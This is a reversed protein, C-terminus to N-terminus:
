LFVVATRFVDEPTLEVLMAVVDSLLAANDQGTGGGRVGSGSGSAGDTAGGAQDQSSHGLEGVDGREQEEGECYARPTAEHKGNIAGDTNQRTEDNAKSRQARSRLMVLWSRRRWTRDAPAMTLLLRVLEVEEHACMSGEEGDFPIDLMDVASRGACDLAAEDAGHRLLLGVAEQLGKPRHHCTVHLASMGTEDSCARANQGHRVLCEMVRAHGSASALDFASRYCGDATRVKLDAGASLLIEVAGLHGEEAANMLPTEGDDNLANKDAGSLLLAAVVDHFGGCAACHLATDGFQTCRIGHDAGATVLTEAVVLHGTGAATMLPTQGHRNLADKDAGNLLLASVIKGHGILAAIHLATWGFFGARRTCRDVDAGAAVLTEVSACHGERAALLVPTNGCADLANKDAGGLLLAAVIKSYGHVAAYHLPTCGAPASRMNLDAGAAVLTEVAALHGWCAAWMLPTDEANDRVDKDANALVLSSVIGDYGRWAAAHLPTTRYVLHRADVDVGSALLHKVLREHGNGAAKHLVGRKGVPDQFNVNAGALILKVAAAEHGLFTATYLASRGSSVSVVNVDAGAGARVLASVVEGNGGVAAADLLTRGRCGRWGASGNAGAELLRDVLDLNGRAAAHELPARLWEAWQEPTAGCSVLSFMEVGLGHLCARQPYPHM